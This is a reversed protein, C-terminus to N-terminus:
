RADALCGTGGVTLAPKFSTLAPLGIFSGSSIGFASNAGTPGLLANV